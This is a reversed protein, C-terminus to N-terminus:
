KSKRNMFKLRTKKFHSFNKSNPEIKWHRGRVAVSATAKEVALASKNNYKSHLNYYTQIQSLHMGNSTGIYTM